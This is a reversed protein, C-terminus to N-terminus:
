QLDTKAWPSRIPHMTSNGDEQIQKLGTKDGIIHKIKSFNGHPASFFTYGKTKPYFKRYIDTLDMQKMVEILKVTDRNLKQKLSRDMPSLPTNFDGVIITYPKNHSNLRLFHTGKCKPCLHESNLSERPPNEM